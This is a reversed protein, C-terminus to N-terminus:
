NEDGFMDVNDYEIDGLSSVGEDEYEYEDEDKDDDDEDEGEGEDKVICIKLRRPSKEIYRYNIWDLECWLWSSYIMKISIILIDLSHM